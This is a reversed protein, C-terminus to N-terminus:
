RQPRLFQDRQSRLPSSPRRDASPVFFGPSLERYDRTALYAAIQREGVNYPRNRHEPPDIIFSAGSEIAREINRYAGNPSAGVPDFRARRNGEASVFVIDHSSYRGTNALEGAAAAYAATSSGASGQGIFQTARRAKALDKAFYPSKKASRMLLSALQM